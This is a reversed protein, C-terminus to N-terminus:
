RHSHVVGGLVLLISTLLDIAQHHVSRVCGAMEHASNLSHTADRCAKASARDHWLVVSEADWSVVVVNVLVLERHAAHVAVIGKDHGDTEGSAISLVARSNSGRDGLGAVMAHTRHPACETVSRVRQHAVPLLTHSVAM